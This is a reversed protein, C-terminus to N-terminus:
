MTVWKGIVTGCINASENAEIIKEPWDPNLPKLYTRGAEFIIQKFTAEECQGLQVIVCDKNEPEVDPDVFIIDGDEFSPKSGNSNQMSIGKVTLAFTNDSHKVPCPLWKDIETPSSVNCVSSWSGAAVWSIVPVHGKIENRAPSLENPDKDLYLFPMNAVDEISRAKKEGFSKKNLLGSLEGQNIGIVELFEAQVGNYHTDIWRKLNVRRNATIDRM